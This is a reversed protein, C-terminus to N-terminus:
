LRMPTGAADGARRLPLERKNASFRGDAQFAIISIEDNSSIYLIAAPAKILALCVFREFLPIIPLVFLVM